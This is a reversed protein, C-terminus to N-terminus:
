DVYIFEHAALMLRAASTWAAQVSDEPSGGEAAVAQRYQELYQAWAALQAATTPRGWVLRSAYDLREAASGPQDLLRAALHEACEAVLPDNMWFLAQLPVSSSTRVDTSANTDPGDFLALLPDAALRGTLLYVTRRRSPLRTQFPQHQTWTWEAMPPLPHDPATTYDLLKAASLLSDRVAEADLRRRPFRALYRNSPDRSVNQPDTTSALQYVASRTVLRQLHKISWGSSVLEGALWDLLEPHTPPSGRRGFNSSTAVLGQGFHHQWVRNAIVRAVLPQGNTLLWGALQRRGSEGPGVAWASSDGLFRPVGRPVREGPQGPEGRRQIPEDHPTGDSVAYAGPVDSPLGPRELARLSRELSKRERDLAQTLQDVEQDIAAVSAWSQHPSNGAVAAILARHHIVPRRAKLARIRARRPEDLKELQDLQARLRELESQWAALRPAVQDAPELPVFHSRPRRKSQFEESGAYAYQTSAFIGYLGYYDATTIPDFKHDHCRACRLSLGLFSRGITELTDELTLHWLEFPATGYRRSLALFGTAVVREAYQEPPGDRAELDGCIQLRLFEDYPRDAQFSDIVWDRYRAAEPVPYDANDGATDAYRAVDLWHRGWRRGYEPSALLREVLRPVADDTSDQEFAQLEDPSPPLGGLNFYLRRAVIGAPAPEAPELGQPQWAAALFQDIPTRAWGTADPPPAVERLPAFAWHCSDDFTATGPEAPAPWPAGAQIWASLEVVAQPDLPEEPPMALLADTRSVAAILRSAEAQGPVIAPGRTGGALLAERSDVRLGGAPSEGGHCTFCKGALIPRIQLEFRTHWDDDAAAWPTASLLWSALAITRFRPGHMPSARDPSKRHPQRNDTYYAAPGEDGM